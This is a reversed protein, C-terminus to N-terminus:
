IAASPISQTGKVLSKESSKSPTRKDPAVMIVANLQLFPDGDMELPGNKKGKRISGVFLNTKTQAEKWASLRGLEVPIFLRLPSPEGSSPNGPRVDKASLAIWDSFDNNLILAASSWKVAQFAARDEPLVALLPSKDHVGLAFRKAALGSLKLDNNKSGDLIVCDLSALAGIWATFPHESYKSM